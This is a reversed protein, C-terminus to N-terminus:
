KACLSGLPGYADVGAADCHCFRRVRMSAERVCPTSSHRVAALCVKGAVGQATLNALADALRQLILGVNFPTLLREAALRESDETILDALTKQPALESVIAAGAGAISRSTRGCRKSRLWRFRM